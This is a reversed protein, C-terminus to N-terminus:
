QDLTWTNQMKLVISIFQFLMVKVFTFGTLDGTQFLIFCKIMKVRCFEQKNLGKLKGAKFSFNTYDKLYNKDCSTYKNCLNTNNKNLM